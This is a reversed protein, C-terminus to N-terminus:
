APEKIARLHNHLTITYLNTACSKSDTVRTDKRILGMDELFGIHKIVTIKQICCLEAIREHSPTCFNEDNKVAESILTLLVMKTTSKIRLEFARLFINYPLSETHPELIM